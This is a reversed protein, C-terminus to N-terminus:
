DAAKQEERYVKLADKPFVPNPWKALLMGGEILLLFWSVTIIVLAILSRVFLREFFGIAALIAGPLLFVFSLLFFVVELIMELHIKQYARGRTPIVMTDPTHHFVYWYGLPLILFPLILLILGVKTRRSTRRLKQEPESAGMRELYRWKQM